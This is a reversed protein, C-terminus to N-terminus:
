VVMIFPLWWNYRCAICGVEVGILWGTGGVWGISCLLVVCM